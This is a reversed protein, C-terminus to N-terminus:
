PTAQEEGDHEAIPKWRDSRQPRVHGRVLTMDVQYTCCRDATGEWRVSMHSLAAAGEGSPAAVPVSSWGARCRLM